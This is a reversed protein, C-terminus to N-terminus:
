ECIFLNAFDEGVKVTSSHSWQIDTVLRGWIVSTTVEISKNHTTALTQLSSCAFHVKELTPGACLIM